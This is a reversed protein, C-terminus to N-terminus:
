VFDNSNNEQQTSLEFTHDPINSSPVNDRVSLVSFNEFWNLM